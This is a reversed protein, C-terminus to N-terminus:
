PLKSTNCKICLIQLNEETNCFDILNNIFCSYVSKIHDIQLNNISGCLVCKNDCKELIINRVKPNKIFGSSSSRFLKLSIKKDMGNIIRNMTYKQPNWKPFYDVTNREPRAM